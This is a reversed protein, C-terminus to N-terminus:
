KPKRPPRGKLKDPINPTPSPPPINAKSMTGAEAEPTPNAEEGYLTGFNNAEPGNSPVQQPCPLPGSPVAPKGCSQVCFASAPWKVNVTLETDGVLGVHEVSARIVVGAKRPSCHGSPAYGGASNDESSQNDGRGVTGTGKAAPQGGPGLTEDSQTM